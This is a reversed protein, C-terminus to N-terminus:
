ASASFRRPCSPALLKAIDARDASVRHAGLVDGDIRLASGDAQESGYHPQGSRDLYRIIKM